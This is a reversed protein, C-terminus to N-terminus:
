KLAAKAAALRESTQPPDPDIWTGNSDRYWGIWAGEPLDWEVIWEYEPWFQNIIPEWVAWDPVTVMNTIVDNQVGAVNPM